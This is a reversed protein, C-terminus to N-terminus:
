QAGSGELISGVVYYLTFLLIVVMFIGTFIFNWANGQEFDRQCKAKTQIGFLAAITSLLLSFVSIRPLSSPTTVTFSQATNQHDVGAPTTAQNSPDAAPTYSRDTNPKPYPTTSSV